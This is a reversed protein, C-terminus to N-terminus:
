IDMNLFMQLLSISMFRFYCPGQVSGQSVEVEQSLQGAVSVSLLCSQLIERVWNILCSDSVLAVLKELLVAHCVLDFAKSFDLYAM